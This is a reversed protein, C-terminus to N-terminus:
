GRGTWRSRPSNRDYVQLLSRSWGPEILEGQGNLLAHSNTVEHNRAMNVGGGLCLCTLKM